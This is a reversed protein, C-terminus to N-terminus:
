TSTSTRCRSSHPRGTRRCCTSGTPRAPGGPHGPAVRQATAIAAQLDAEDADFLTAAHARPFSWAHPGREAPQHGHLRDHARGRVGADLPDSRGPDPLVRLGRSRGVRGEVAPGGRGPGGHLGEQAAEIREKPTRAGLGESEAEFAEMSMQLARGARGHSRQLDAPVQLARWKEGLRRFATAKAQADLVTQSFLAEGEKLVQSMERAAAAANSATPVATASARRRTCGSTAPSTRGRSAASRREEPDPRDRRRPRVRDRRGHGALRRGPDHQREGPLHRRRTGAPAPM